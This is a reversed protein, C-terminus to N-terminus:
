GKPPWLGKETYFKIAGPHYGVTSKKAMKGPAFARFAPHVSELEGKNDHMAKVVKYVLEDPVDARTLLVYDYTQVDTPADIGAQAASPSVESIYTPPAIKQMAALAQPTDVLPIFRVGGSIQSQLEKVKPMELAALAGDAAGRGLEDLGRLVNPAPVIQVDKTTMGATALVGDLLIALTRMGQYDGAVRKGKLDALSKIGSDKRVLIAQRLPFIVTVMRLNPNPNGKFSEIGLKGLHADFANANAFDLEGRNLLPLYQTPGAHTQVVGSVGEKQSAVKVIASMMANALTGPAMTGFGAVQQAATPSALAAAAAAILAFASRRSISRHM